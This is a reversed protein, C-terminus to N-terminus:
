HIGTTSIEVRRSSSWVSVNQFHAELNSMLANIETETMNLENRLLTNLEANHEHFIKLWRRITRFKVGLTKKTYLLQNGDALLKLAKLVNEESSCLNYFITGTRNCFSKKCEKCLFRRGTKEDKRRYTGNLVINAKGKKGYLSCNKNPCVLKDSESQQNAQVTFDEFSNRHEPHSNFSKCKDVILAASDNDPTLTKIGSIKDLSSREFIKQDKSLVEPEVDPTEKPESRKIPDNDEKLKHKELLWYWPGGSRMVIDLGAEYLINHNKSIAQKDNELIKFGMTSLLEHTEKMASYMGVIYREKKDIDTLYHAVQITKYYAINISSIYSSFFLLAGEKLAIIDSISEPMLWGEFSKQKKLQDFADKTLPLWISHGVYDGRSDLIMFNLDPIISSAKEVVDRRLPKLAHYINNHCSLVMNYQRDTRISERTLTFDDGKKHYTGNLVINANQKKGYLPFDKNPYVLKDLGSQRKSQVTFDEFSNGHGPQHDFSKRRDVIMVGSDNDPISTKIGTIKDLSSKEFMDQDKSLIEPDVVSMENPEFRETLDNAEKVKHKELLWHWPGGPRMVIDLGAEYLMNYDESIAHKDNKALKFGLTSLLEHTEKMATYMGVIFKEKKDIGTLYQTANIQNYYAVNISAKYTSFLLITGEKLAVIDSISEPTLWGEFSKQKKLQEFADNKLPLWISHGVYHGWSDLVIFNLDPIISSAKEVVDRRLPKVARYIDNHCSLVMNYQKDTRIKEKTLSFVDDLKGSYKFLTSPLSDALVPSSAFWRKQLTYWMPQDANLAVCVQMPIGTVESLDHLNETRVRRRNSEWNRLQRVSVRILGSIFEQSVGRWKRYDKLLSGLSKYLKPSDYSSKTGRLVLM